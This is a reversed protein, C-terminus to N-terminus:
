FGRPGGSSLVLALRAPGSWPVFRPQLAAPLPSEPLIDCGALPAAAAALLFARRRPDPM